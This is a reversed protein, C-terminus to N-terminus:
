ELEEIEQATEQLEPQIEEEVSAPEPTSEVVPQQEVGYL